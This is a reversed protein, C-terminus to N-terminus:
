GRDRPSPSTYLLCINNTTVIENTGLELRSTGGATFGFRDAAAHFIGTTASSEFKLSPDSATGDQLDIIANNIRSNTGNVTLNGTVTADGGVSLDSSLTAIGTVSLTNQLATAGTITASAAAIAGVSIASNTNNFVGDKDISWNTTTISGDSQIDVPTTKTVGSISLAYTTGSTTPPSVYELTDTTDFGRGGDTITTSEIFGVKSVQFQFGSGGGGGLDSDAASLVDGVVYPGGASSVYTVSTVGTVNSGITYLFGSGSGINTPSLTLVDGVKLDNGQDSLVFSTVAGGSITVNATASDGFSGQSSTGNGVTIYNGTRPYTGYSFDRSGQPATSKLVLDVWGGTSGPTGSTVSAYSTAAASGTGITFTSVSSDSTDFRYTNHTM